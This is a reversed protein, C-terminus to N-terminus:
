KIKVYRQQQNYNYVNTIFEDINDNIYKRKRPGFSEAKLRYKNLRDFDIDKCDFLSDNGVNKREICEQVKDKDIVKTDTIGLLSYYYDKDTIIGLTPDIIEYESDIFVHRKFIRSKAVVIQYDGSLVKAFLLCNLAAHEQNNELLLLLSAPIKDHYIYRLKTYYFKSIHSIKQSKRALDIYIKTKLLSLNIM